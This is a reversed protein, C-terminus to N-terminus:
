RINSSTDKVRPYQIGGRLVSYMQNTFLESRTVEDQMTGFQNFGGSGEGLLTGLITIDEHRDHPRERETEGLEFINSEVIRRRPVTTPRTSQSVNTPVVRQPFLPQAVM